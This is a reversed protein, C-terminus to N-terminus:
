VNVGGKKLESIALSISDLANAIRVLGDAARELIRPVGEGAGSIKESLAQAGEISARVDFIDDMAVCLDNQVATFNLNGDAM